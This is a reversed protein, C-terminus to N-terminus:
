CSQTSVARTECEEGLTLVDVYIYHKHVHTLQGHWTFHSPCIYMCEYVFVSCLEDNVNAILRTGPALVPFLVLKSHSYPDCM